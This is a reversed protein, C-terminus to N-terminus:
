NEPSWVYPGEPGTCEIVPHQWPHVAAIARALDDVEARTARELYTTVTVVLVRISDFTELTPTLHMVDRYTGLTGAAPHERVVRIVERLEALPRRRSRAGLPVHVRVIWAPALGM